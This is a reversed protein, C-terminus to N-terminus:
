AGIPKLSGPVEAGILLMIGLGVLTAAMLLVSYRRWVRYDVAVMFAAALLGILIWVIQRKLFYTVDGAM